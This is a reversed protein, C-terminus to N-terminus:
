SKEVAEAEYARRAAEIDDFVYMQSIEHIAIWATVHSWRESFSIRPSAPRGVVFSSFGIRVIEIDEYVGGGHGSCCYIAVVKGTFDPHHGGWRLAAPLRM